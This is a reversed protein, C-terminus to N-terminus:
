PMPRAEKKNTARGQGEHCVTCGFKSIPHNELYRGSHKKYPVEEDAMLPNEVGIHCNMCRDVQNLTSLYIQQHGIRFSGAKETMEVDNGANNLFLRKYEVQYKKWEPNIERIAALITFAFLVLGAILLLTLYLRRYM